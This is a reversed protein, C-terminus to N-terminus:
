HKRPTSGMLSGEKMLGGSAKSVPNPMPTPTPTPTVPSIKKLKFYVDATLNRNWLELTGERSSIYFGEPDCRIVKVETYTNAGVTITLAGSASQSSGSSQGSGPKTASETAAAEDRSSSSSSKFPFLIYLAAILAALTIFVTINRIM